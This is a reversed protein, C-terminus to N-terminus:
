TDRLRPHDIKSQEMMEGCPTKQNNVPRQRITGANVRQSNDSQEMM